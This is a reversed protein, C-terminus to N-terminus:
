SHTTPSFNLSIQLFHSRPPLGTKGVYSVSAPLLGKPKDGPSHEEDIERSEDEGM